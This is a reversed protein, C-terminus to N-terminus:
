LGLRRWRNEGSRPRNRRHGGGGAVLDLVAATEKARVEMSPVALALLPAM